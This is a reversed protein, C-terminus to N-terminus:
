IDKNFIVNLKEVFPKHLDMRLGLFLAMFLFQRLELRAQLACV